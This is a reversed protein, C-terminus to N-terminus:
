DSLALYIFLQFRMHVIASMGIMVKIFCIIKPTGSHYRFTFFLSKFHVFGTSSSYLFCFGLSCLIFIVFTECIFSVFLVELSLHSVHLFSAFSISVSRCFGYFYYM